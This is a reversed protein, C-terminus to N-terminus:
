PDLRPSAAASRSLDDTASDVRPGRAAILEGPIADAVVRLRREFEGAEIVPEGPLSAPDDAVGHLTVWSSCGGYEPALPVVLPEDLRHVRLALLWLPQRRKWRLRATAYEATWVFESQLAALPEPDTLLATAAVDAWGDIRVHDPGTDEQDALTRELAPRHAPELLDADQHEYTPFLWFRDVRLEFRRGEEHIGGKRLDLIQEGRLLADVVVAWEKCAPVPAGGAM